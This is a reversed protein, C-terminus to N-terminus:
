VRLGPAGPKTFYFDRGDGSEVCWMGGTTTVPTDDSGDPRMKWIQWSEDRDCNYYLWQSDHSWGSFRENHSITRIRRPPGAEPDLLFMTYLGDQVAACAIYREDPSWRPNSLRAGQFASIQRPQSGDEDCVWVETFGSRASLFSIRDGRPSFQAGFDLRTSTILPSSVPTGTAPDELDVRWIDYEYSLEEYILGAGRSPMTPRMVFRGQTVLRTQSGDAVAVRWLCFKGMPAASYVLHEGDMTWDLGTVIQQSHTLRQVPGGTTPVLYLDQAGAPDTRIFAVTHGDPSFMPESDTQYSSAQGTLPRIDDSELSYLYLRVPNSPLSAAAFALSNGDPSWDLGQITASVQLLRRVPGGFAPLTYIAGDEDAGRTFAITAGDPSWAPYSEDEPSDTLRLRSDAHRQKVYLDSQEGSGSNWTFAVLTGDPSFAPYEECGPSSTLPTGQLMEVLEVTSEEPAFPWFVVAAVALAAGVLLLILFLPLSLRSRGLDTPVEASDPEMWPSPATAIASVEYTIPAILRYGGKRITEIFRPAGPDDRLIGRLRSISRTLAEECVIIDSWVTRLLTRRAVVEGPERALCVLVGMVRPELQIPPGGNSVRNLSPQILWEGLCFPPFTAPDYKHLNDQTEM